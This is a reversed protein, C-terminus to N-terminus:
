EALPVIINCGDEGGLHLKQNAIVTHEIESWIGAINPHIAYEPFNSSSVDLRICHNEKISWLVPLCEIEILVTENPTYKKRTTVKNRYSLTTINNRINYAKGDPFVDSVKITFCTDEVDTQVKLVAKISGNIKKQTCFPESIFSIVDSRQGIEPQLKSGRIDESVFLTEGGSSMVPNEPSYKYCITNKEDLINKSLVGFADKESKKLYYVQNKTEWTDIISNTYWKDDGICYKLNQTATQEDACLKAFWEFLIKNLNLKGNLSQYGGTEMKFSHNWGGVFLTSKEKIDENLLDFSLLTGKLHHDFWGAIICMPKKAKSPMEKLMQWFGENWYAANYDTESVWKKYWPLNVGWIKEDASKHPRCKASEMYKQKFVEPSDFKLGCNSLAWGTLIDHRFLGAEYASLYRDTGYHSVFMGVVKEPLSDALVWCNLAMYSTGHLGINGSWNQKNLWNLTDIGDNRENVNPEFVGDSKGIGRCFQFIYVIGRKAFEEAHIEQYQRMQAYPTRTLLVPWQGLIEEGESKPFYVITELNCGDRASVFYEKKIVDDYYKEAKIENFSERYDM